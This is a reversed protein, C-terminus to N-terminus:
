YADYLDSHPCVAIAGVRTGQRQGPIVWEGSYAKDSTTYFLYFYFDGVQCFYLVGFGMLQMNALSEEYDANSSHVHARTLSDFHAILLAQEETPPNSGIHAAIPAALLSPAPSSGRRGFVSKIDTIPKTWDGL